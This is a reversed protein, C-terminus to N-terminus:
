RLAKQLAEQIGGSIKGKFVMASFPLEGHFLVRDEEVTMKGAIKIGFTSFHFGLVNDTWSGELGSIQGAYQQGIRDLFGELRAKAAEQGMSHPIEFSFSPM